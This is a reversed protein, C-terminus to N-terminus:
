PAITESKPKPKLQYIIYASLINNYLGKNFFRALANPFFVQNAIVGYSRIPLFSNSSRVEVLWSKKLKRGLGFNIGYEFKNFPYVGNWNGRETDESYNVLYALSPGMTIFYNPNVYYNLLLPLEIYNLNVRYFTYNNNKPDQNKRAGKQTFVFGLDISLKKTLRSNVMIGGNVGFKHFGSADDGHIQCANIGVVPKFTFINDNVQANISIVATVIFLSSFIFKITNNRISSKM